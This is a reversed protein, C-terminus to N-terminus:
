NPAEEEECRRLGKSTSIGLIEFARRGGAVLNGVMLGQGDYAIVQQESHIRAAM